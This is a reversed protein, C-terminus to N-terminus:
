QIPWDLSLNSYRKRTDRHLKAQVEADAVYQEREARIDRVVEPTSIFM